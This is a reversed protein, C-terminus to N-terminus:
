RATHRVFQDWDGPRELLAKLFGGGVVLRGLLAIWRVRGRTLAVLLFEGTFILPRTLAGVPRSTYFITWAIQIILAIWLLGFAALAWRSRDGSPKGSM